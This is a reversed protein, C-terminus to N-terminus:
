IFPFGREFQPLGGYGGDFRYYFPPAIPTEGLKFPTEGKNIRKKNEEYYEDIILGPLGYTSIWIVFAIVKGYIMSLGERDKAFNILNDKSLEDLYEFNFPTMILTEDGTFLEWEM